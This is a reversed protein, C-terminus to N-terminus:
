NVRILEEDNRVFISKHSFAPATWVVPRGFAENTPTLLPTRGLETYGDRSFDAHILDGTESFLFFTDSPAHLTLFATGHRAKPDGDPGLTPLTTAWLREATSLDVATLASSDVDCGYIVGDIIFPTSNACYVGEKPKSRWVIEPEGTPSFRILAGVRGIGSAFLFDGSTRPAMISMGYNPKLPVSWQGAGTRPDLGNLSQPHWILLTPKGQQDMITPPCYGPESASLARWKEEGTVADWAVATQGEGGVLGFVMGEWVLPHASHGWIPTEVGYDALFNKAWLVQGTDADLCTLDGEAGLAYVKGDAITPACRPGGAYSLFYPRDYEHRWIEDGSEVDFCRLREKGSLKDKGSPLNNLEGSEKQYEFLYVKDGAISPASYGLGIPVKWVVDPKAPLESVIGEEEWIGQTDTGMWRPWDAHLSSLSLTLALFARFAHIGNM